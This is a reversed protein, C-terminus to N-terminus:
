TKERTIYIYLISGLALVLNMLLIYTVKNPNNDFLFYICLSIIISLLGSLVWLKDTSAHFRKRKKILQGICVGTSTCIMAISASFWISNETCLLISFLGLILIYFLALKINNRM